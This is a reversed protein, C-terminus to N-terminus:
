DDRHTVKIATRALSRTLRERRPQGPDGIHDALWTEFSERPGHWQHLQSLVEHQHLAAFRRGRAPVAALAVPAADIALLGRRAAYVVVREPAPRHGPAASLVLTVRDYNVGISETRDMHDLATADLWTIWLEAETGPSPALTAPIAGYRAMHAAHVVDVDRATLRTVPISVDMGDFKRALQEPARNSGVAAVPTLGTLDITPSLDTVTGNEFLYDRDHAAYPYALARDISAKTM